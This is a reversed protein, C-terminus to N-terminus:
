NFIENFLMIM